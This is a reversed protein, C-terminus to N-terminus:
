SARVFCNDELLLLLWTVWLFLVVMAWFKGECNVALGHRVFWVCVLGRSKRTGVGSLLLAALVTGNVFERSNM